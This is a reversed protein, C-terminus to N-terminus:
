SFDIQSTNTSNRSALIPKTIYEKKCESTWSWYYTEDQLINVDYKKCLLSFLSQDHRHEKFNFHNPLISPTDDIYHYVCSLNYWETLLRLSKETKKFFIIGSLIQNTNLLDNANLKEILDMKNWMHEIQELQFCLISKDNSNIINIYELLREKGKINLECGADCYLLIDGDNIKELSKLILYPKWIAYGYFRSNKEIFKGHKEWFINDNKLDKDDYTFVKEFLKFRNAENKIRELAGYFKSSGFTQFYIKQETM